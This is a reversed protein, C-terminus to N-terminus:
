PKARGLASSVTDITRLRRLGDFPEGIKRNRQRHRSTSGGAPGGIGRFDWIRCVCVRPPPTGRWFVGDANGCLSKRRKPSNPSQMVINARRRSWSRGVISERSCRMPLRTASSVSGTRGVGGHRGPDLRGPISTPHVHIPEKCQSRQHNLCFSSDWPRCLPGV